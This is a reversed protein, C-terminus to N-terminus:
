HKNLKKVGVRGSKTKLQLWYYGAPLAPLTIQQSSTGALTIASVQRGNQDFLSLLAPEDQEDTYTLTFVGDNPNPSIQFSISAAEATQALQEAGGADFLRSLELLNNLELNGSFCILVFENPSAVLLVLDTVTSGESQAWIHINDDQDRATLLEDYAGATVIARAQQCLSLGNQISDAALIRLSGINRIVNHLKKWDKDAMKTQAAVEFLDQSLFAYTFGQDGKHRDIFRNLSENQAFAGPAALMVALCLLFIQKM